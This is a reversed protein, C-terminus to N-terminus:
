EELLFPLTTTVKKGGYSTQSEKKNFTLVGLEVIPNVAEGSLLIQGNPSYLTVKTM